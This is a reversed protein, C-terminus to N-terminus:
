RVEKYLESDNIYMTRTYKDVLIDLEEKTTAGEILDMVYQLKLLQHNKLVSLSKDQTTYSSQMHYGKGNIDFYFVNRSKMVLTEESIVTDITGKLITNDLYLDYQPRDEWTDKSSSKIVFHGKKTLNLKVRRSIDGFDIEKKKDFTYKLNHGEHIDTRSNTFIVEGTCSDFVYISRLLYGAGKSDYALFRKLCSETKYVYM